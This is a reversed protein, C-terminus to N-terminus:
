PNNGSWKSESKIRRNLRCRSVRIFQKSQVWMHGGELFSDGTGLRDSSRLELFQDNIDKFGNKRQLLTNPVTSKVVGSSSSRARIGTQRTALVRLAAPTYTLVQWSKSVPAAAGAGAEVRGEFSAGAAVLADEAGGLPPKADDAPSPAAPAQQVTLPMGGAQNAADEDRPEIKVEAPRDIFVARKEELLQRRKEKDAFDACKALAAAATCEAAIRAAKEASAEERLTELMIQRPAAAASDSAPPQQTGSDTAATARAVSAATSTNQASIAAATAAAATAAAAAAASASPAAAVACAPAPVAAAAAAAQQAAAIDTVAISPATAAAPAADVSAAATGCANDDSGLPPLPEAVDFDGDRDGGADYSDEGADPTNTREQRPQQALMREGIGDDNGFGGAAIGVGGRALQNARAHTTMGVDGGGGGGDIARAPAVVAAARSGAAGASTDRRTKKSQKTAKAVPATRKSGVGAHGCAPAALIPIALAAPASKAAEKAATAEAAAEDEAEDEKVVAEAAADEAATEAEAAAAAEAEASEDDAAAAASTM